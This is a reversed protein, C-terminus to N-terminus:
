SGGRPADTGVESQGRASARDAAVGASLLAVAIGLVAVVLAAAAAIRLVRDDGAAPFCPGGDLNYALAV